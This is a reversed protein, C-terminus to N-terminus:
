EPRAVYGRRSRVVYDGGRVRIRISHYRGDAGRDPSYGLLYQSNLEDAIRAMTAALETPDRIVETYGASADTIARLAEVQAERNLPTRRAPDIAIAYVFLDSRRLAALTRPLATDSATDAGDSILLMAARVHRRAAFRPLAAVLADYLATGGFPVVRGLPGTVAGLDSTWSALLLPAHNFVMLFAEDGERLLARVFYEVAQRAQAMREGFMSDSADLLIGVSLPVREASFARIAQPLSDEFVLFDDRTLGGILRGDRDTVTALVTVGEVGARWVHRTQAPLAEAQLVVLLVVATLRGDM